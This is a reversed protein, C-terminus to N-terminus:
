GDFDNVMTMQTNRMTGNSGNTAGMDSQRMTTHMTELTVNTAGMTSNLVDADTASSGDLSRLTRQNGHADRGAALANMQAKFKQREPSPERLKVFNSKENKFINRRMESITEPSLNLAEELSLMKSYDDEFLLPPDVLNKVQEHTKAVAAAEDGAAAATGSQQQKKNKADGEAEDNEAGSQQAQPTDQDDVPMEGYFTKGNKWSRIKVAAEERERVQEGNEGLALDPEVEDGARPDALPFHEELTNITATKGGGGVRRGLGDTLPQTKTLPHQNDAGEKLM